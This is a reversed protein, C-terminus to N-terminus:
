PGPPTSVLDVTTFTVLCKVGQPRADLPLVDNGVAFGTMPYCVSGLKGGAKFTVGVGMGWHGAQHIEIDQFFVTGRAMAFLFRFNVGEFARMGINGATLTMVGFMTVFGTAQLTVFSRMGGIGIVVAAHATMRDMRGPFDSVGLIGAIFDAGAAMFCYSLREFATGALVRLQLTYIAVRLFM